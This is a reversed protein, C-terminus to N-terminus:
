RKVMRSRLAYGILILGLLVLAGWLLASSSPGGPQTLDAGTVPVLSTPTGTVQPPAMTAAVTNTATAVAVTNTATAVIVTAGADTTATAQFAASAFAPQAALALAFGLVLLMVGALLVATKKSDNSRMKGRM